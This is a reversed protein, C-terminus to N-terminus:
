FGYRSFKFSCYNFGFALTVNNALNGNHIFRATLRQAKITQGDRLQAAIQRLYEEQRNLYVFWKECGRPTPAPRPVRRDPRDHRRLDAGGQRIQAAAVAIRNAQPRRRPRGEDGEPDSRRRAQLDGELQDVYETRTPRREKRRPPPRLRPAANEAATLPATM